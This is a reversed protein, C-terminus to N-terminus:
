ENRRKTENPTEGTMARYCRCFYGINEFGCAYIVDAVTITEETLLVRARNIRLRNRYKVPSIGFQKHFLRRFTNVSMHCVDAFRQVPLNQLYTQELHLEGAAIRDEATYKMRYVKGKPLFVLDEAEATLTTGDIERFCASGSRIYFFGCNKRGNEGQM